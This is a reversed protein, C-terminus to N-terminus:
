HTRLSIMAPPSSRNGGIHDSKLGGDLPPWLGFNHDVILARRNADSASAQRDKLIGASYSFVVVLVAVVLIKLQFTSVSM